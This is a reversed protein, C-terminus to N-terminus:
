RGSGDACWTLLVWGDGDDAVSAALQGDMGARLHEYRTVRPVHISYDEDATGEITASRRGIFPAIHQGPKLPTFACVGLGSSRYLPDNTLYYKISYSADVTQRHLVLRYSPGDHVHRVSTMIYGQPDGTPLDDDAPPSSITIAAPPHKSTSKGPKAREKQRAEYERELKKIEDDPWALDNPLNVTQRRPPGPPDVRDPTLVEGAKRKRGGQGAHRGCM